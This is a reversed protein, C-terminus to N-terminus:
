SVATQKLSVHLLRDRLRHAPKEIALHMLWAIGFSALASLLLVSNGASDLWRETALQVLHIVFKHVLYIGYSYIAIRSSIFSRARYLVSKPGLAGLLFFAFGLAVVPFGFFTAEPSTEDLCLFYAGTLVGFGALFWYNGWALVRAATQKRFTCLAAIGIGALLGDLRCWTPYYVHRMWYFRVTSEEQHPVVFHDYAVYRLGLGALSLTVLLVATWKWSWRHPRKVFLLLILPFVAYFQEEICLSWAHSFCSKTQLDLGFNRTFTLYKWLPALQGYERIVPLLFYLAVVFFYPPVIRFFRKAYFSALSLRGKQIDRFLQSAILYGSLVFFLDVGTWGFKCISGLWKPHPFLRGYHYCFVLLIALTRLHDLGHLRASHSPEQTPQSM